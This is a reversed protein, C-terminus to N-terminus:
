RLQYFNSLLIKKATTQVVNGSLEDVLSIVDDATWERAETGYLLKIADALGKLSSEDTPGETM